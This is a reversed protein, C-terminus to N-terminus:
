VDGDVEGADNVVPTLVPGMVVKKSRSLVGFSNQDLRQFSVGISKGIDKIDNAKAETSGKLVVWNQWDNTASVATSSDNSSHHHVEELSKTVRARQRQRNRIKQKLIKMVKSDKLVKM